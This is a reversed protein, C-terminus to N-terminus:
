ISRARSNKMQPNEYALNIALECKKCMKVTNLQILVIIFTEFPSYVTGTIACLGPLPRDVKDRLQYQVHKM